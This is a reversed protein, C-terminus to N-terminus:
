KMYKEVNIYNPKAVLEGTKLDYVDTYVKEGSWYQDNPEVRETTYCARSDYEILYIKRSSEVIIKGDPNYLFYRDRYEEGDGYYTYVPTYGSFEKEKWFTYLSYPSSKLMNYGHVTYSGNPSFCESEINKALYEHVYKDVTNYKDKDWELTTIYQNKKADSVQISDGKIEGICLNGEYIMTFIETNSKYVPIGDANFVAYNNGNWDSVSLKVPNYGKLTDTAIYSIPERVAQSNGYEKYTYPYKALLNEGPVWYEASDNDVKEFDIIIQRNNCPYASTDLSGGGVISDYSSSAIEEGDYSYVKMEDIGFRGEGGYERHKIVRYYDDAFDITDTIGQNNNLTDVMLKYDKNGTEANYIGTCKNNKSYNESKNNHIYFYWKGSKEFFVFSREDDAIDEEPGDYTFIIKGDNKIWQKDEGSFLSLDGNIKVEYVNSAYDSVDLNFLKLMTVASQEMTYNSKPSFNNDGVGRMIGLSDMKRVSEKAWDSVTDYDSFVTDFLAIDEKVGMFEATNTLIVAAEERTIDDNPAFETESRGNIIGSNALFAVEADDTDAFSSKVNNESILSKQELMKYALHCFDIRSINATLDRDAFFNPLLEAEDASILSEEAWQSHSESVEASAGIGSALIMSVCLAGLVFKKKM